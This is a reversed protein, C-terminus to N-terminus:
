KSLPKFIWGFPQWKFIIKSVYLFILAAAIFAISMYTSDIQTSSILSPTQLVSGSYSVFVSAYINNIAHIGFAMELGGDMIVVIGLLLGFGIYQIMANPLGFEKVEPNRLHVLGFIISTIFLPFFRTQTVIALGQM